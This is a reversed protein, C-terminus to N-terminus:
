AVELVVLRQAGEGLPDLVELAEELDLGGDDDVVQMGVIERRSVRELPLPDLRDSHLVMVRVERRAEGLVALLAVGDRRYEVAAAVAAVARDPSPLHEDSPHVAEPPGAM